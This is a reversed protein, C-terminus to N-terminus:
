MPNDLPDDLTVSQHDSWDSEGGDVFEGGGTPSRALADREDDPRGKGRRAQHQKALAILRYDKLTPTAGFRAVTADYAAALNPRAIRWGAGEVANARATREAEPDYKLKTFKPIKM